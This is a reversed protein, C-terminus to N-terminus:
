WLGYLRAYVWENRWVSVSRIRQRKKEKISVCMLVYQVSKKNEDKNQQSNTKTAVTTITIIATTATQTQNLKKNKNKNPKSDVVVVFRSVKYLHIWLPCYVSFFFLSLSFFQTIPTLRDICLLARTRTRANSWHSHMISNKLEKKKKQIRGYIFIHM